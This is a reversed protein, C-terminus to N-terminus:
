TPEKPMPLLWPTPPKIMLADLAIAQLKLNGASLNAIVVSMVHLADRADHVQDLSRLLSAIVADKERQKIFFEAHSPPIWERWRERPEDIM